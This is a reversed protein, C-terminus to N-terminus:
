PDFEVPLFILSLVHWFVDLVICCFMLNVMYSVVITILIDVHIYIYININNKSFVLNWCCGNVRTGTANGRDQASRNDNRQPINPCFIVVSILYM